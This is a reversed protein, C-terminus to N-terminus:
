CLEVLELFLFLTNHCWVIDFFTCRKPAAAAQDGGLWSLLLLVDTINLIELIRISVFFFLFVFFSRRIMQM